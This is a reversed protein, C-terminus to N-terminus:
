NGSSPPPQASHKLQRGGKPNAMFMLPMLARFIETCELPNDHSTIRPKRRQSSHLEHWATGCLAAPFPDLVYVATRM